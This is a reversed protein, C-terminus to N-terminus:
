EAFIVSWNQRRVRSHGPASNMNYLMGGGFGGAFSLDPSKGIRRTHEVGFLGHVFGDFNGYLTRAFKPDAWFTM